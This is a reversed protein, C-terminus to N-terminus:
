RYTPYVGLPGLHLLHRRGPHCVPPTADALLGMARETSSLAVFTGDVPATTATPCVRPVRPAHTRALSRPRGAASRRGGGRAACPCPGQRAQERRPVIARRSGPHGIPLPLPPPGWCTGQVVWRYSALAPCHTPGLPRPLTPSRWVSRPPSLAAPQAAATHPGQPCQGPFPAAFSLPVAAPVVVCLLPGASILRLVRMQPTPGMGLHRPTLLLVCCQQGLWRGRAVGWPHRSSACHWRRQSAPPSHTPGAARPLPLPLHSARLEWEAPLQPTPPFFLFLGCDESHVPPPGAHPNRLRGPNHRSRRGCSCAQPPRQPVTRRVERHFQAWVEPEAVLVGTALDALAFQTCM